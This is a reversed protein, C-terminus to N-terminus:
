NKVITLRIFRPNAPTVPVLDQQTVTEFGGGLPTRSLEVVVGAGSNWAQKDPSVEVIYQLLPESVRHRYSLVLYKNGASEILSPALGQQSTERQNPNLGLAFELLNDLGDHDPDAKDGWVTVEKSPDTLDAPSFYGLRWADLNDGLVQLVFTSSATATGDSVSVSITATGTLNTAPFIRLTRNSNSGGFIIAANPVLWPNSSNAALTLNAAPTEADSVVFAIAPTPTNKSTTRDVLTSIVPPTNAQAPPVTYSIENSFDSEVGSTNYATATFYYTVGSSLGTIRNTTTNGANVSNTYSRSALGYYVNYGAIDAAPNPDWGLTVSQAGRLPSSFASLLILAAIYKRPRWPRRTMGIQHM